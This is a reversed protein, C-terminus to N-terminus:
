KMISVTVSFYRFGCRHMELKSCSKNFFNKLFLISLYVSYFCTVFLFDPWFNYVATVYVYMPLLSPHVAIWICSMINYICYFRISAHVTMHNSLNVMPHVAVFIHNACFPFVLSLCM